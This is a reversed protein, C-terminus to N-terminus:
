PLVSDEREAGKLRLGSRDLGGEIQAGALRLRTDAVQETISWDYLKWM